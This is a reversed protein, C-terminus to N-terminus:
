KFLDPCTYKNLLASLGMTTVNKWLYTGKGIECCATIVGRGNLVLHNM